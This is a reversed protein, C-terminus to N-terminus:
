KKESLYFWLGGGFIGIALLKMAFSSLGLNITPNLVLEFFSKKPKDSPKADPRTWPRCQGLRTRIAEVLTADSQPLENDSQEFYTAGDWDQIRVMTQGGKYSPAFREKWIPNSPTYHVFTTTTRLSRLDPNSDFWALLRREAFDTQWRDSTLVITAYRKGDQPPNIVHEGRAEADMAARLELDSQLQEVHGALQMTQDFAIACCVLVAVIAFIGLVNKM